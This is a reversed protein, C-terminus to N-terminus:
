DRLMDYLVKAPHPRAVKLVKKKKRETKPEPPPLTIEFVLDLFSYFHDLADPYKVNFVWFSKYLLELGKSINGNVELRQVSRIQRKSTM